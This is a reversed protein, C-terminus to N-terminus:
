MYQLGETEIILRSGEALIAATQNTPTTKILLEAPQNRLLSAPPRLRPLGRPGPHRRHHVVVEVM